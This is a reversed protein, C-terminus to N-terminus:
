GLKRLAEALLDKARRTDGVKMSAIAFHCYEMADRVHPDAASQSYGHGARPSSKMGDGGGGGGGGGSGSNERSLAPSISSAANGGSPNRTLAASASAAPPAMGYASPRAGGSSPVAPMDPVSAPAYAFLGGGGGGGKGPAAAAAPAPAPAPASAPGTGGISQQTQPEDPGGIQPKRGEKCAKMIDAAKWGAYKQRRPIEPDNRLGDFQNLIGAVINANYFLKATKLSATGARDDTDALEFVTRAYNNCIREGITKDGAAAKNKDQVDMLGIIFGEVGPEKIYAMSQEIAAQRLWFTLVVSDPNGSDKEVTEALKIQPSVVKTVSPPIDM